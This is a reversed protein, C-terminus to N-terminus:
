RVSRTEGASGDAGAAAHPVEPAARMMLTFCRLEDLWRLRDLVPMRSYALLREDSIEYDFDIGM